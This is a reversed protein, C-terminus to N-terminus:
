VQLSALETIDGTKEVWFKPVIQSKTKMSFASRPSGLFTEKLM